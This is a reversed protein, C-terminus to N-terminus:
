LRAYEEDVVDPLGDRKGQAVFAMRVVVEVDAMRVVGAVIRVVVIATRAGCAREASRRGVLLMMMLWCCCCDERLASATRTDTAVSLTPSRRLGLLLM